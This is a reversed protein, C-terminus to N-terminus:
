LTGASFRTGKADSASATMWTKRSHLLTELLPLGSARTSTMVSWVKNRQLLSPDTDRQKMILWIPVKDTHPSLLASPITTGVSYSRIRRKLLAASRSRVILTIRVTYRRRAPSRRSTSCMGFAFNSWAANLSLFGALKRRVRMGCRVFSCSRCARSTNSRSSAASISSSSMMWSSISAFCWARMASRCACISASKARSFCITRCTQSLSSTSAFRRSSTAFPRRKISCTSPAKPSSPSRGTLLSACIASSSSM